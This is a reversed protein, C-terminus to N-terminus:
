SKYVHQRLFEWVKEIPVAVGYSDGDKPGAFNIGILKFDLNLLAGGSSGGQTPASHFISLFNTTSYPNPTEFYVKQYKWIKGFTITNNQGKPQGLSIVEDGIKPNTNTMSIVHLDVTNEFILVALDYNPDIASNFLRARHERGKYDIITYKVKNFGERKAAVHCNTLVYYNGHANAFIIGSGQSVVSSTTMGLFTNYSETIIKVNASIIEKQVYNMLGVYDVSYKAYVDLNKTIIYGYDIKENNQTFWGDSLYNEKSPQYTYTVSDGYNYTKQTYLTGDNLYYNIIYEKKIRNATYTADKTVISIDPSWGIYEWEDNDLPLDFSPLQGYEINEEKLLTGDTDNWTVNYKRKVKSYQVQYAIHKTVPEIKPSWGIFCYEFEDTKEPIFVESEYSPITGYEAYTREIIDGKYDFWSVEYKRLVEQFQAVYIINEKVPRISPTWGIFIYEYKETSPKTPTKGKYTPIEDKIFNLDTELVSGDYNEWTVKYTDGTIEQNPIIVEPNEKVKNCCVLSFSAIFIVFILVVNKIKNM